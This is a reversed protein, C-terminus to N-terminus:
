WQKMLVSDYKRVTPDDHSLNQEGRHVMNALQTSVMPSLLHNSAINHLIPRQTHQM